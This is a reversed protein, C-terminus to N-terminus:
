HQVLRHHGEHLLGGQPIQQPLIEDERLEKKRNWRSGEKGESSLAGQYVGPELFRVDHEAHWILDLIPLWKIDESRSTPSHLTYEFCVYPTKFLNHYM